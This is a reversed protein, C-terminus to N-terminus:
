RALTSEISAHDVRARLLMDRMAVLDRKARAAEFAELLGLEHLRENVTMGDLVQAWDLHELAEREATAADAFRGSHFGRATWSGERPHPSSRYGEFGYTGDERLFVEIKRLGDASLLTRVVDM